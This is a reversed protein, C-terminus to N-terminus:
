SFGELCLFLENCKQHPNMHEELARTKLGTANDASCVRCLWGEHLKLFNTTLRYSCRIQHSAVQKLVITTWSPSVTTVRFCM